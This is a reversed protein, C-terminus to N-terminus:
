DTVINESIVVAPKKSQIFQWKYCQIVNVLVVLQWGCILM